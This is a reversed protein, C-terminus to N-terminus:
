RRTNIEIQRQCLATQALVRLQFARAQGIAYGLIAGVVAGIGVFMGLNKDPISPQATIFFGGAGGVLLLFLTWLFVVTNAQSYLKDALKQIVAPDYQTAM